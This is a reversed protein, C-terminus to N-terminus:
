KMAGENCRSLLDARSARLVIGNVNQMDVSFGGKVWAAATQALGKIDVWVPRVDDVSQPNLGHRRMRAYLNETHDNLTTQLDVLLEVLTMTKSKASFEREVSPQVDDNTLNVVVHRVLPLTRLLNCWFVAEAKFVTIQEGPTWQDQMSDHQHKFNFNLVNFQDDHAFGKMVILHNPHVNVQGMGASWQALSFKTPLYHENMTMTAVVADHDDLFINTSFNGDVSFFPMEDVLQVDADCAHVLDTRNVQLEVKDYRQTNITIRLRSSRIWDDASQRLAQASAWQTRAETHSETQADLRELESAPLTTELDQRIAQPSMANARMQWTELLSPKVDAPTISWHVSRVWFLTHLLNCWFVGEANALIARDPPELMIQEKKYKILLDSVEFRVGKVEGAVFILTAPSLTPNTWAARSFRTKPYYKGMHMSARVRNNEQQVTTTFHMNLHQALAPQIRVNANTYSRIEMAMAYPDKSSLLSEVQQLSSPPNALRYHIFMMSLIGCWGRDMRKPDRPEFDHFAHVDAKRQPGSHACFDGPSVYRLPLAHEEDLQEVFLGLFRDLMRNNYFSATKGHPEFRAMTKDKFDFIVANAHFPDEEDVDARVMLIGVLFRKRCALIQSGLSHGVTIFPDDYEEDSRPSEFTFMFDMHVCFKPHQHHLFRLWSDTNTVISKYQHYPQKLTLPDRPAKALISHMLNTLCPEVLSDAVADKEEPKVEPAKKAPPSGVDLESVVDRFWKERGEMIKDLFLIEIGSIHNYDDSSLEDTETETVFYEIGARHVFRPDIPPQGNDLMYYLDAGTDKLTECFSYFDQDRSFLATFTQPTMDILIHELHLQTWDPIMGLDLDPSTQVLLVHGYIELNPNQNLLTAIRPLEKIVDISYVLLSTVDAANLPVAEGGTITILDLEGCESELAAVKAETAPNIGNVRGAYPTCDLSIHSCSLTPSDSERWRKPM